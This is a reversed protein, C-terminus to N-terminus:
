GRRQEDISLQGHHFDFHQTPFHYIDGLTMFDKFFPDWRTPYHMGRALNDKSEAELRRHLNVVVRDFMTMMRDSSLLSGGFWSGLYNAADFPKTVMNLLRAYAASAGAPLRGFVHVLRLLAHVVLYGLLMHFLLQKNTWRTGNSPKALDADTALELIRHFTLRAHEMEDHIANADVNSTHAAHRANVLAAARIAAVGPRRAVDVHDPVKSGGSLGAQAALTSLSQSLALDSLRGSGILLFCM